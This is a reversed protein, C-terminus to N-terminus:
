ATAAVGGLPDPGYQNAGDSGKLFGLVILLYIAFIGIVASLIMMTVTPTPMAIGNVETTTYGFGFAQVLLMILTLAFYVYVDNGSNNRDHRRKIAIALSPIGLIVFMILSGWAASRTAANMAEAFAAPNAPDLAAVNPMIGLGVLSLIISLVIAGIIIGIVGMWYTKRSIRGTFSTYLPVLNDM